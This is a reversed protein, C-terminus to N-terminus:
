FLGGEKSIRFLVESLHEQVQRACGVPDAFIESGTFRMVPWGSTLLERDRKKDRAAQEKTREHFAHGDCEICVGQKLKGFHFWIAVDARYTAIKAQPTIWFNIQEPAPFSSTGDFEGFQDIGPFGAWDCRLWLLAAVLQGEIPSGVPGNHFDCLASMRSATTYLLEEAQHGDHGRGDKDPEGWLGHLDQMYFDLMARAFSTRTQEPISYHDFNPVDCNKRLREWLPVKEDTM